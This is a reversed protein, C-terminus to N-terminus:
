TRRIYCELIGINERINHWHYGPIELKNLISWTQSKTETLLDFLSRWDNGVVQALVNFGFTQLM